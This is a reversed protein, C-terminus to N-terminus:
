DDVIGLWKRLSRAQRDSNSAVVERSALSRGVRDDLRGAEARREVLAGDRGVTEREVLRGDAERDDLRDVLVRVGLREVGTVRALVREDDVRLAEDVLVGREELREPVRAGLTELGVCAVGVRGRRPLEARDVERGVTGTLDGRVPLDVLLREVGVFAGVSLIGFRLVLLGSLSDRGLSVAGLGLDAGFMRTGAAFVFRPVWFRRRPVGILDGAMAVGRGTVGLGEDVRGRLADGIVEPALDIRLGEELGRGRGVLLGDLLGILLGAPFGDRLGDPLVLEGGRLLEFDVAVGSEFVVGPRRGRLRSPDFVERGVAAELSLVGRSRSRLGPELDIRLGEELGRGRGIVLGDSLSILLGILLGVPFGDSLGELLGDPLSPEGGRSVGFDVGVESEFVVGPLCGRPRPTDFVERGVPRLSMSERGRSRVEPALDNRLGGELGRDRGVLLGDLLGVLFGDSAGDLLGDSLVTEGGTLLGFDVGVGSGFVADPRRGRPRSPDLVERVVPRFSMLERSRSRLAEMRLEVRVGSVDSVAPRVIRRVGLFGRGARPENISRFPRSRLGLPLSAFTLRRM